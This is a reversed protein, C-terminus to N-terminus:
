AVPKSPGRRFWRRHHFKSPLHSHMEWRKANRADNHCNAFAVPRTSGSSPHEIRVRRKQRRVCVEPSLSPALLGSCHNRYTPGPPSSTMEVADHEHYSKISRDIYADERSEWVGRTRPNTKPQNLTQSGAVQRATCFWTERSHVVEQLEEGLGQGRDVDM